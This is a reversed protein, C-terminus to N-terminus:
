DLCQAARQGEIWLSRPGSTARCMVSAQLPGTWDARLCCVSLCRQAPASPGISTTPSDDTKMSHAVAVWEIRVEKESDKELCVQVLMPAESLGNLLGADYGDRRHRLPIQM